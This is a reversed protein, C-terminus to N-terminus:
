HVVIVKLIAEDPHQLAIALGGSMNGVERAGPCANIKAV